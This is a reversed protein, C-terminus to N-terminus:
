SFFSMFNLKSLIFAIVGGGGFAIWIMRELKDIRSNQKTIHELITEELKGIKNCISTESKKLDTQFEKELKRMNLTLLEFDKESDAKRQEIMDQLKYNEKEYFDIKTAQVALLQSVNTSVETLKAITTDLRGVLVDIKSMDVKLVEVSKIVSALDNSIM